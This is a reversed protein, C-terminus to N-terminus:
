AQMRQMTVGIAMKPGEECRALVIIQPAFRGNWLNRRATVHFGTVSALIVRRMSYM